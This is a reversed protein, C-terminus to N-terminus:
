LAQIAKSVMDLMVQVRMPQRRRAPYVVHVTQAPGTWRPLLRVLQKRQILDNVMWCPQFAIGAGDVVADLLAAASNVRYRTTIPADTRGDPGELPVTDNPGQPYRLFRHAALDEPRRPRGRRALYAPSAVIYRPWVALKRAVMDLPLTGGIRVAFDFREQVLDVYRDELMLDIELAPYLQLAHLMLANLQLEGLAMPASIRVLGQPQRSQEDLAAVAEEYDELLRRASEVFRAGEETLVSRTAAREFLRIGLERELASVQKSVTSQTTQLSRAAASLSGLDATRVLALM